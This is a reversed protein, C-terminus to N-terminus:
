YLFPSERSFDPLYHNNSSIEQIWGRYFGLKHFTAVVESYEKESLTRNLQAFAPLSLTPNYQSMLSITLNTTFENALYELLYMSDDIHGPLVLHRVIVGSEILGNDDLLISTGKQWIMEKMAAIAISFYNNANSYKIAVDDSFYKIDPLYVDVLGDLERLVEVNEYANTNYIITPNYGKTKLIEIIKIMQAIQHSPSVFGVVNVGNDLIKSIRDTIENYDTYWSENQIQNNSIQHNQCYVCSLNCHAFFVNCVGKKGSIVPEEGKHLVISSVLPNSGTKCYGIEGNERDVNCYRPCQNCRAQNIM